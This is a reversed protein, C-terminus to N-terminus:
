TPVVMKNRTKARMWKLAKALDNRRFAGVLSGNTVITAHINESAVAPGIHNM